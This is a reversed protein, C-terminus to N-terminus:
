RQDRRVPDSREVGVLEAVFEVRGRFTRGGFSDVTIPMELGPRVHGIQTEPVFIRVYLEAPELLRKVAQPALMIEEVVRERPLGHAEAQADIQAEVLPTRVFGPCVATALIGVPGCELALSKVLRAHRPTMLGSGSTATLM